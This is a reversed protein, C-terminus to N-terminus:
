TPRRNERVARLAFRVGGILVITLLADLVIVSRPVTAEGGMFLLGATFVLASVLVARILNYLDRMGVYCWWGRYLGYHAFALLRCGLLLPLSSVFADVYPRPVFGEFRLVYALWYSFLLLVFHFSVILVSRYRFLLNIVLPDDTPDDSAEPRPADPPALEAGKVVEAKHDSAM